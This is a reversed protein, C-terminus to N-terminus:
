EKLFFGYRIEWDFIFSLVLVMFVLVEFDYEIRIKMFCKNLEQILKRVDIMYWLLLYGLLLFGFDDFVDVEIEDEELYFVFVVLIDSVEGCIKLEDGVFIFGVQLIVKVIFQYLILKNGELIFLVELQFLLKKLIVQDDVNFQIVYECGVVNYLKKSLQLVVYLDCWVLICVIGNNNIIVKIYGYYQEENVNEKGILM